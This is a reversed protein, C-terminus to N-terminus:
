DRFNLSFSPGPYAYGYGYSPAYTPGYTYSYYTPGSYYGYAYPAYQGHWEHHERWEHGRWQGRHEWEDARASLPAGVVMALGVALAGVGLAARWRSRTAPRREFGSM